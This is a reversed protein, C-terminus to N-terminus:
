QCLADVARQGDGGAAITYDGSTRHAMYHRQDPYAAEASLRTVVLLGLDTDTTSNTSNSGSAIFAIGVSRLSTGSLREEIRM